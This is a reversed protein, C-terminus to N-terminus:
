KVNKEIDEHVNYHELLIQPRKFKKECLNCEFLSQVDHEKTCITSSKCNKEHNDRDDKTGFTQTCYSCLFSWQDNHEEMHENLLNQTKFNKSCVKCGFSKDRRHKQNHIRFHDKRATAYICGEVQCKYRKSKSKPTPKPGISARSSKKSTSKINQKVLVSTENIKGKSIAVKQDIKAASPSNQPEHQNSDPLVTTNVISEPVQIQDIEMNEPSQLETEHFFDFQRYFNYSNPVFFHM